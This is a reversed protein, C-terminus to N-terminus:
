RKPGAVIRHVRARSLRAWRAVDTQQWGDDLAQVIATNRREIEDELAIQCGDVHEALEALRSAWYGEDHVETPASM